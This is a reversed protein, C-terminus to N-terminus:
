DFISVKKVKLKHYLVLAIFVFSIICVAELHHFLGHNGALAYYGDEMQVYGMPWIIGFACATAVLSLFVGIIKWIIPLIKSPLTFGLLLPIAIVYTISYSIPDNYYYIYISLTAILFFLITTISEKMQATNKNSNM